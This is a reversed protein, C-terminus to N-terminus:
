LRERLVRRLLKGSASRPLEDVVHVERPQKTRGLRERCFALVQQALDPSAAEGPAPVVFAVPREGFEADAVGVVGCEAVEPMEAIGLELEQPYINVGGSIIMDDLRDSVFLYGDADVHGIDGLTQFGQPSTRGATKQPDGFYEFSPAGSFYITGTEGPGLERGRADLIHLEGKAARGVSGPKGLWEEAKIWTLGVGESGAYYEHIIPGWWDIMRRKLSPPCPAGAHFAAGHAPARFRARREEPLALLRQFMTPVWQSTTIGRTEVLDLATAADFKRLILATGGAATVALTWRLPAAHYLPAPSLYRTESSLGFLEILDRAFPPPGDGVQAPTPLPRWIGKPAGTTGSSYMMLAGPTEDPLPTAPRAALAAELDIFGPIEGLSFFAHVGPFTRPLDGVSGAFVADALLLRCQSNGVVYAIETPSFTNAVPTFYVGARYAGWAAAIVHPGNAFVAAVHDGRRLGADRYLHAFRNAMAELGAYRIAPESEFELVPREPEREAWERLGAQM